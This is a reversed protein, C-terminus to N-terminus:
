RKPKSQDARMEREEPPASKDSPLRAVLIVLFILLQADLRLRLFQWSASM